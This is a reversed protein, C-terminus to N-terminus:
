DEQVEFISFIEELKDITKSFKRDDFYEELSYSTGDDFVIVPNADWYEGDAIPVFEISAQRLDSGLYLGFDLNDNIIALNKRVDAENKYDIELDKVANFNLYGDIQVEGLVDATATIKNIEVDDDAFKYGDAGLLISVLEEKGKSLVADFVAKGSKMSLDSVALKYDLVNAEGNISAVAANVASENIEYDGVVFTGSVNFSSNIKVDVYTESGRKITLVIHEPVIVSYKEKDRYGKVYDGNENYYGGREWDSIVGDMDYDYDEYMRESVVDTISIEAKKGTGVLTLVCDNGKSDKMKVSLDDADTCVWSNGKLELHGTISSLDYVANLDEVEIVDSKTAYYNSYKEMKEVIEEAWEELGSTNSDEIAANVSEYFDNVKQADDKSIFDAFDAFTGAIIEKSEEPTHITPDEAESGGKEGCSVILALATFSLAALKFSKM